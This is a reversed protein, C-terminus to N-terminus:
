RASLAAILAPDAGLERLDKLSILQAAGCARAAHPLIPEIVLGRRGGDLWAVFKLVPPRLVDECDGDPKAALVYFGQLDGSAIEGITTGDIVSDTAIATVLKPGLLKPLDVPRGTDLDYVLALTSNDPHAGGCYEEDRAVLSLFRPGAMTVAITRDANNDKGGAKCEKVFGAWRRDLRSLAENIKATTPTLPAAIRPFAAASAPKTLRLPEAASVGTALALALVLAWARV